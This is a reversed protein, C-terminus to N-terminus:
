PTNPDQMQAILEGLIIEQRIIAIKVVQLDAIDVLREYETQEPEEVCGLLCIIILVALVYKM